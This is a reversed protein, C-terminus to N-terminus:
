EPPYPNPAEPARPPERRFFGWTELEPAVRAHGVVEYGAKRYFSVNAAAETSLTVGEAHPTARAIEHVHALLCRALGQGQASPRVGIMNLHVHPVGVEFAQWVAGCREYRARTDAGLELWTAQRLTDLGPPEEGHGPFSVTAAAVLRGHTAIGLLPEDRLARAAVFFGILTRLRDAYEDGAPGVVWRMVPYDRFADCFVDVVAPADRPALRQVEATAM